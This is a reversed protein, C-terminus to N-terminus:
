ERERNERERERKKREREEEKEERGVATTKRKPRTEGWTLGRRVTGILEMGAELDAIKLVSARLVPRSKLDADRPDHGPSCLANVISELAHLGVGGAACDGDGDGDGNNDGDGNSPFDTADKSASAGAAGTASSGCVACASRDADNLFTCSPCSWQANTEGKEKTEEKKTKTKKKEKKVKKVKGKKGKVRGGGAAAFARLDLGRLIPVVEEAWEARRTLGEASAGVAEILDRAIHYSEPHVQTDDLPEGPEAIRLFGAANAFMKPGVGKVKLLDDRRRLAGASRVHAHIAAAQRANLGSVHKLLHPSAVQSPNRTELIHEPAIM